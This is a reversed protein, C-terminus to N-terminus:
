CDVMHGGWPIMHDQDQSTMHKCDLQGSYDVFHVVQVVPMLLRKHDQTDVQIMTHKTTINYTSYVM